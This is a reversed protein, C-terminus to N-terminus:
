NCYGVLSFFFNSHTKLIKFFFKIIIIFSNEVVKVSVMPVIMPAWIPSCPPVHGRQFKFVRYFCNLIRNMLAMIQQNFNLFHTQGGRFIEKHAGM